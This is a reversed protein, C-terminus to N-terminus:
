RHPYPNCGPPCMSPYLRWDPDLVEVRVNFTYPSYSVGCPHATASEVQISWTTIIWKAPVDYPLYPPIFTIRFTLDPSSVGNYVYTLPARTVTYGEESCLEPYPYVLGVDCDGPTITVQVPNGMKGCESNEYIANIVPSINVDFISGSGDDCKFCHTLQYRNNWTLQYDPNQGGNVVVVWLSKSNHPNLTGYFDARGENGRGDIARTSIVATGGNFIYNVEYLGPSSFTITSSTSGGDLMFSFATPPLGHLTFYAISPIANEGLIYNANNLVETEVGNSSVLLYTPESLSSCFDPGSSPARLTASWSDPGIKAYYQGEFTRENGSCIVEFGGNNSPCSLPNGSSTFSLGFESEASLEGGDTTFTGNAVNLFTENLTPVEPPTTPSPCDLPPIEEEQIDEAESDEIADIEEGTEDTIEDKSVDELVDNESDVSDPYAENDNDDKGDRADNGDVIEEISEGDGQPNRASSYCGGNLISSGTILGAVLILKAGVRKFFSSKEKEANKIDHKEKSETDREVDIESYKIQGVM